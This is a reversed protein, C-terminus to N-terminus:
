PNQRASLQEEALVLNFQKQLWAAVPKAAETTERYANLLEPDIQFLVDHYTFTVSAAFWFWLNLSKLAYDALMALSPVGIAGLVFENGEGLYRRAMHSHNPHTTKSFFDYLERTQTEKEGLPHAALVRRVQANGVQKGTAWQDALKPEFEFAVFLSLSEYARRALPYAIELKGKIILTRAEYLFDFVDAILDRATADRPSTPPVIGLVAVIRCLVEGFRDTIDVYPALLALLERSRVEAFKTLDTYTPKGSETM